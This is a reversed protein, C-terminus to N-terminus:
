GGMSAAIHLGDDIRTLSTPKGCLRTYYDAVIASRFGECPSLLFTNWVIMQAGPNM